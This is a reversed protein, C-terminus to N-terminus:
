TRSQEILARAAARASKLIKDSQEGECLRAMTLAGVMLSWVAYATDRASKSDGLENAVLDVYVDFRESLQRRTAADRIAEMSLTAMTCGTSPTDRHARSLYMAVKAEISKDSAAGVRAESDEIARAVAAEILAARSPFHTYFAGHTLGASEMLEAISISAPGSERIMRAAADLIRERSEAKEAQSHGM